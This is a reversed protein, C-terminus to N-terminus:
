CASPPTLSMSPTRSGLAHDRLGPINVRFRQGYADSSKDGTDIAPGLRDVLRADSLRDFARVVSRYFSTFAPDSNIDTRRTPSFFFRQYLARAVKQMSVVIEGDGVTVTDGHAYEITRRGESQEATLGALYSVIAIEMRVSDGWTLGGATADIIDDVIRRPQALFRDTKVFLGDPLDGQTERLFERSSPTPRRGNIQVRYASGLEQEERAHSQALYRQVDVSWNRRNAKWNRRNAKACEAAQERENRKEEYWADIILGLEDTLTDIGDRLAPTSWVHVGSGVADAIAGSDATRYTTPAFPRTTGYERQRHHDDLDRVMRRATERGTDVTPDSSSGGDIESAEASNESDSNETDAATPSCDPGIRRELADMAQEVRRLQDIGGYPSKLKQRLILVRGVAGEGQACRLDDASDYGAWWDPRGPPRGRAPTSSRDRRGGGPVNQPPSPVEERPTTSFTDPSSQEKDSAAPSKCM